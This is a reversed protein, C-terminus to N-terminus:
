IPSVWLYDKCWLFLLTANFPKTNGIVRVYLQGPVTSRNYKDWRFLKPHALAGVSMFGVQRYGLDYSTIGQLLSQQSNDFGVITIKDLYLPKERELFAKALIAVQDNCCVWATLDKQAVAKKFLPEFLESIGHIDFVENLNQVGWGLTEKEM